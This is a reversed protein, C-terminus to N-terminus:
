RYNDLAPDDPRRNLILPDLLRQSLKVVTGNSDSRIAQSM